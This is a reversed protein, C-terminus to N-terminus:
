ELPYATEVTHAGADLEHLNGGEHFIDLPSTTWSMLSQKPAARTAAGPRNRRNTAMVLQRQRRRGADTPTATVQVDADPVETRHKRCWASDAGDRSRDYDADAESRGFTLIHGTLSMWRESVFLGQV